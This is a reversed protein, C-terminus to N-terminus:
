NKKNTLEYVTDYVTDGIFLYVWFYEIFCSRFYNDHNNNVVLSLLM